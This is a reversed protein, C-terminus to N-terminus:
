ETVWEGLRERFTLKEWNKPPKGAPPLMLSFINKNSDEDWYIPGVDEVVVQAFADNFNIALIIHKQNELYNSKSVYIIGTEKDKVRFLSTM